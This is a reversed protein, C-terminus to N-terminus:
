KEEKGRATYGGFVSKNIQQSVIIAAHEVIKSGVSNKFQEAGRKAAPLRIGIHIGVLLALILQCKNM